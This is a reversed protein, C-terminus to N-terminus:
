RGETFTNAMRTADEESKGENLYQKKKRDFLRKVGDTDESPGGGM